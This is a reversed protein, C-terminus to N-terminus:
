YPWPPPVFSNDFGMSDPFFSADPRVGSNLWHEMANLAALIQEASYSAHGTNVYVQVLKDGDGAAEVLARYVAEHSPPLLPDFKGHVTIVPRRLNGSPNGYKEVHNRASRRAAINSHLNMWGLLEDANVGLSSLYAKEEETLTYVAGLNRAVPGGCLQEEHSRLSIAKWGAFGLGPLGVFPDVEWWATTSEKMVLRIFEWQGYNGEWPWQFVPIILTEENGYLDDRLDEVPGWSESPWGFAAAYALDYRL